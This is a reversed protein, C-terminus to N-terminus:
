NLLDAIAGIVRIVKSTTSDVLVVRDDIVVYTQGRPAPDLGADRWRDWRRHQLGPAGHTGHGAQSCRGQKALGPPCGKQGSQKGKSGKYKQKAHKAGKDKPGADAIPASTLVALCLAAGALLLSRM